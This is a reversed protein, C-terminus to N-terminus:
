NASPRDTRNGPEQPDSSSAGEPAVPDVLLAQREEEIRQKVRKNSRYGCWSLLVGIIGFAVSCVIGEIMQMMSERLAFRAAEARDSERNFHERVTEMITKGRDKSVERLAVRFGQSRRDQITAAMEELKDRLMPRLNEFFKKQDPDLTLREYTDISEPIVAIGRYYSELYSEKGTLIYGRQGTEADLLSILTKQNASRMAYSTDFEKQIEVLSSSCGYAAVVAVVILARSLTTLNRAIIKKM